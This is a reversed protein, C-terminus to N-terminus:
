LHVFLISTCLVPSVDLILINEWNWDSTLSVYGDKCLIDVFRGSSKKFLCLQAM